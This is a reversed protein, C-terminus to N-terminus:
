PLRSPRPPSTPPMRAAAPGTADAPPRPQWHRQLTLRLGDCAPLPGLRSAAIVGGLPDREAAALWARAQRLGDAQQLRLIQPRRQNLNAAIRQPQACQRGIERVVVAPLGRAPQPPAARRQWWWGALGLAAAASVLLPLAVLAAPPARRPRAPTGGEQCRHLGIAVSVDDGSGQSTIHALGEELEDRAEIAALQNCLELFDADTACSKRVGDTSLVVTLGPATLPELGARGACLAAAQPLCLSATAEATTAATTTLTEESLLRAAGTAPLLVLDWDGLGTYGWWQPTMLVLGLTCGYTAPTFAQQESEPRQQWDAAIAAQWGAVIAAPLEHELLRRWAQQDALPTRRLATAVAQRAQECALASGVQSLWYRSSGHGDAVAMLQVANAGVPLACALSADQCPQGRRRHSAGIVSCSRPHLWGGSM